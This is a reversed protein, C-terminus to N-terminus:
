CNSIKQLTQIRSNLKRFLQGGINCNSFEHYISTFDLLFCWINITLKTNFLLNQVPTYFWATKHVDYWAIIEMRIDCSLKEHMWLIICWLLMTSVCLLDGHKMIKYGFCYIICSSICLDLNGVNSKGTLGPVACEVKEHPKIIMISLNMSCWISSVNITEHSKSVRKFHGRM